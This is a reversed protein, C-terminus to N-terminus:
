RIDINFSEVLAKLKNGELFKCSIKGDDEQLAFATLNTDPYENEVFADICEKSHTTLFLQVNFDDALEQIFGTFDVLLSKHIASDLEDICLVGNQCYGMFLAIEFVRQLGEGYKTLDIAHNLKSSTVMFRSTNDINVMEIKEISHDMKDQIFKVIREFYREQIAKAHAKKLLDGNYRYPSSFAAECLVQSKDFYLQPERNSFLHLTSTFTDGNVNAESEISDIYYSKDINETTEIKQLFLSCEKHNFCGELHIKDIFFTDFWKASFDQYFRGRFKELEILSQITNLKTFLYVLELVSTKGTNNGGAFLNVKSLKNIDIDVLKRYKHVKITSFHRDISSFYQSGKRETLNIQSKNVPLLLLRSLKDQIKNLINADGDTMYQSFQFASQVEKELNELSNKFRSTGVGDSLVYGATISRKSEMAKVAESDNIFEALSRIEDRKSIIPHLKRDSEEDDEENTEPITSLWSFLREQNIIALPKMLSEDWQLWARLELNTVIEQFIPYMESKFQDGYDSKKYLNILSFTRISRRIITKGFGLSNSIEDESLHHINLLDQILQSQNMLSWKKKGNLHHLGMTILHQVPSEDSILVVEIARFDEEKLKGIDFNKKYQEQLFKLAATRRNGEIVLYKAESIKRVQIPDLKLIGNTKFSLILDTINEENKGLLLRYTREQIRKDSVQFEDVKTYDKHDIFRYNNADLILEDINIQIYKDM